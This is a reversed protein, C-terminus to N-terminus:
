AGRLKTVAPVYTEADPKTFLEGPTNVLAVADCIHVLPATPAFQGHQDDWVGCFWLSYDKPHRGVQTNLDNALDSFTRAAAGDSVAFWPSHYQLSKCDFITYSRLLM